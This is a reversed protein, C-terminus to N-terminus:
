ASFVVVFFLSGGGGGWCCCGLLLCFLCACLFVVGVEFCNVFVGFCSLRFLVFCCCM